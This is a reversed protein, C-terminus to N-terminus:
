GWPREFLYGWFSTVGSTLIPDRKVLRRMVAETRRVGIREPIESDSRPWSGGVKHLFYYFLPLSSNVPLIEGDPFLQSVTGDAASVGFYGCGCAADTSLIHPHQGVAEMGLIYYPPFLPEESDQPCRVFISGFAPLGVESLLVRSEASVQWRSVIADNLPEVLRDTSWRAMETRWDPVATGLIRVV